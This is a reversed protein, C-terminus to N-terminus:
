ANSSVAVSSPSLAAELSEVISIIRSVARRTWSGDTTLWTSPSMSRTSTADSLGCSRKWLMARVGLSPKTIDRMSPVSVARSTKVRMGSGGSSM